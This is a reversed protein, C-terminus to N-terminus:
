ETENSLALTGVDSGNGASYVAQVSFTDNKGCGPAFSIPVEISRTSSPAIPGVPLPM